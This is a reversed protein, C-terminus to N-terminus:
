AKVGPEGLLNKIAVKTRKKACFTGASIQGICGNTLVQNSSVRSSLAKVRPAIKGSYLRV